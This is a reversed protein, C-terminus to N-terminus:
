KWARASPDFTFLSPKLYDERDYSHLLKPRKKKPIRRLEERVYPELDEANAGLGYTFNDHYTAAFAKPSLADIYM